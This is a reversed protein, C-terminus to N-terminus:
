IDVMLMTEPVYFMRLLHAFVSHVHFFYTLHPVTQLAKEREGPITLLPHKYKIWECMKLLASM